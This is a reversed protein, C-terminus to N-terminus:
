KSRADPPADKLAEAKALLTRAKEAYQSAPNGALYGRLADADNKDVQEWLLANLKVRAREAHPSGPFAKLFVQMDEPKQSLRVAEWAIEDPAPNVTASTKVSTPLMVQKPRIQARRVPAPHSYHMWVLTAAAAIMATAGALTLISKLKDFTADSIRVRLQGSPSTRVAAAVAVPKEPATVAAAATEGAKPPASGAAIQQEIERLREQIRPEDAYSVLLRNVHERAKELTGHLETRDVAYLLSSILEDHRATKVKDWFETPIAFDGELGQTESLLADAVRWNRPLLNRSEEAATRLVRTRLEPWARSLNVAERFRGTAPAFRDRALDTRFALLVADLKAARQALPDQIEAEATDAKM